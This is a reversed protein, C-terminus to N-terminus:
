SLGQGRGSVTVWREDVVPVECHVVRGHRAQLPHVSFRVHRAGRQVFTEVQTAHLASTRAGTDVKCKIRRVGLEPLGVWERWGVDIRNAPQTM